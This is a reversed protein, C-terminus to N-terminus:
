TREFPSFLKQHEQQAYRDTMGALYDCVAREVGSQAAWSRWEPPLMAPDEVYARFLETVFRKAKRKMRMVRHHRYVRDTLFQQLARKAEAMRSSFGVLYGKHARVREVSDIGLAEIRRATEAVLDSVEINILFRLTQLTELREEFDGYTERVARAAHRWLELGEVEDAAVLGAKIADDIDHADYAIADALDVLQAELLPAREPEFEKLEPWHAPDADGHKIVSERVEYTLNLGRFGPYRHELVDVIRLGQRNHEFGGHARMCEDLAEGGSHGFPTHGIDHALAVAEALDENLGLARAATRAIQTAEITHTLRTRYYDGEENVFVQTKYELRRFATSHIVRDRDRQYIGRYGHEPEPFSRGRSERSKMAFPALERTERAELGERDLPAAAAAAAATAGTGDLPRGGAPGTEKRTM